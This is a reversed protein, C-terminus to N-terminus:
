QYAQITPFNHTYLVTTDANACALNASVSVSVSEKNGNKYITLFKDQHQRECMWENTMFIMYVNYYSLNSTSCKIFNVISM